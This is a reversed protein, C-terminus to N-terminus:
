MPKCRAVASLHTFEQVRGTLPWAFFLASPRQEQSQLCNYTKRVTRQSSIEVATYHTKETKVTCLTRLQNPIAEWSPGNM